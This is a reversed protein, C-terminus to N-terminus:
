TRSRSLTLLVMVKKTETNQIEIESILIIKDKKECEERHKGPVPRLNYCTRRINDNFGQNLELTLLLHLAM